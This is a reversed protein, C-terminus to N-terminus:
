PVVSPVVKKGILTKCILGMVGRLDLILDSILLGDQETTGAADELM